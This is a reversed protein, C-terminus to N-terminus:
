VHFRAEDPTGSNYPRILHDLIDYCYGSVNEIAKHYAFMSQTKQYEEVWRRINKIPNFEDDSDYYMYTMLYDSAVPCVSEVFPEKDRVVIVEGNACRYSACKAFPIILIAIGYEKGFLTMSMKSIDVDLDSDHLISSIALTALLRVNIVDPREHEVLSMINRDLIADHECKAAYIAPMM